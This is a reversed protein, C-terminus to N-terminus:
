NGLETRSLTSNSEGASDPVTCFSRKGVIQRGLVTCFRIGLNQGPSHLMQGGGASDPSVLIKGELATWSLASEDPCNLIKTALETWSLVSKSFLM